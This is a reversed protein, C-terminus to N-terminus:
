RHFRFLHFDTRSDLEDFTDGGSSRAVNACEGGPKFGIQIIM